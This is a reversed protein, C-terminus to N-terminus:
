KHQLDRRLQTTINKLSNESSTYSFGIVNELSIYNEKIAKELSEKKRFYGFGRGECEKYGESLLDYLYEGKYFCPPFSEDVANYWVLLTQGLGSQFPLIKEEIPLGYYAKDSEFYFLVKRPLKPYSDTITRLITQRINGIAVQKHIDFRINKVNFLVLTAVLIVAITGVIKKWPSFFYISYIFVALMVSVFIFSMYLHRGDLLSVFGARGPVVLFPTSSLTVFVMSTFITKSLREQGGKKLFFILLGGVILILIFFGLTIIDAGISEAIYPDASGGQVFQPYSLILLLRSMNLIVEIPVISQVIFKIPLAFLRYLYALMSPQSLVETSQEPVQNIFFFVIRLVIYICLLAGSLFILKKPFTKYTKWILFLAPMLVFMFISTEKFGLAIPLSLLSIFLLSSKEKKELYKVFLILSLLAFLTSGATGMTTVTWTIAQHSISNTLFLLGGIFSIINNRLLIRSLIYVLFANVIHIGISFIAYGFFELRLLRFQWYSLFDSIPILHTYHEYTFLREFWSLHARDWYTFYGFLAWEDQQFFTQPLKGFTIGAVLLYIFFVIM